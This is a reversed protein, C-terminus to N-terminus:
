CSSTDLTDPYVGREVSSPRRVMVVSRDSLKLRRERAVAEKVGSGGEDGAKDGVADRSLVGERDRCTEEETVGAELVGAGRLVGLVIDRLSSGRSEVGLKCFRRDVLEKRDTLALMASWLPGRGLRDRREEDLWRAEGV